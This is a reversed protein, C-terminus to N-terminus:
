VIFFINNLKISKNEKLKIKEAAVSKEKVQSM